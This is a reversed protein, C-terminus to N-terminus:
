PAPTAVSFQTVVWPMRVPTLVGSMVAGVVDRKAHDTIAPALIETGEIAISAYPIVVELRVTVFDISM